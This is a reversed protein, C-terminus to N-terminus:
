FLDQLWEKVKSFMAKMSLSDEHEEKVQQRRAGYLLLGVGTAYEPSHVVDALGGIGEPYGVRVPKELLDVALEAIGHTLASGGTLVIGGPLLGPYGSSDLKNKVLNIIEQVRPEIISAIMKKSVRFTDRGGVSPVDVFESDSTLAPLTGGHEKKIIEAQTLPTRLGVALDSTIYDGGIPLVATYWLTGQEFLAIDTTGGGMDVVVVGLEKEAPYLVAEGSAYGNLVLEWPHFGARECCKIINQLAANVITVIHTEVELRSGIMGIPDLINENGDVLYQRPIVHVIRRDHPLAIVRAAQLVREVDEPMIEQDSSSVAVVGRNNLSSVTLGTIGVCGGDIERGSMQEAKEISAEIARVTNEIDIVNGKRIGASEVAGFGIVQIQGDRGVEGAIVAVKRSGIDLSVIMNDRALQRVEM